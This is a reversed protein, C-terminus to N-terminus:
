LRSLTYTHGRQCAGPIHEVSFLIRINVADVSPKVPEQLWAISVTAPPKLIRCKARRQHIERRTVEITVAVLRIFAARLCYPLPPALARRLAVM